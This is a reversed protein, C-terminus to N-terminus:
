FTSVSYSTVSTINVLNQSKGQGRASISKWIKNIFQIKFSLSINTQNLAWNSMSTRTSNPNDNPVDECIEFKKVHIGSATPVFSDTSM